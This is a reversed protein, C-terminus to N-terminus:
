KIKEVHFGNGAALRKFLLCVRNCLYYYVLTHYFLDTRSYIKIIFLSYNLLSM